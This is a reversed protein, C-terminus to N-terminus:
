DFKRWAQDFASALALDTSSPQEAEIKSPSVEFPTIARDSALRTDALLLEDKNLVPDPDLTTSANEAIATAEDHIQSFSRLAVPWHAFAAELPTAIEAM